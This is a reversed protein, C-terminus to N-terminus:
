PLGRNNNVRPATHLFIEKKDVEAVKSHFEKVPTETDVLMKAVAKQKQKPVKHEKFAKRVAQAVSLTKFEDLAKQDVDEDDIQALAEQIEWQKWDGGLFKLITTQGVGHTRAQNFSHYSEFLIKISKNLDDWEGEMQQRLWDRVVRVTEIM